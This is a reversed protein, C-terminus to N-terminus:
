SVQERTVGSSFQKALYRINSERYDFYGLQMLDNWSEKSWCLGTGLQDDTTMQEIDMM